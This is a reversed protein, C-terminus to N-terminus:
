NTMWVPWKSKEPQPNVPQETRLEQGRNTRQLHNVLPWYLKKGVKVVYSQHNRSIGGGWASGGTRIEPYADVVGVGAPVIAVIIGMKEKTYGGAQSGWTVEDGIEM